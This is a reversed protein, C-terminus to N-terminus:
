MGNILTQLGKELDFRGQWGLSELKDSALSSNDMLNYSQKDAVSSETTIVKVDGIKAMAEALARISCISHPNSINYAEGSKGKLLITLIATACDLVYCYSRLQRGPSKLVIDEGKAVTKTFQASARSDDEKITPGYIHGPRAIVFDVGYQVGYSVCLTEAARKASPYCARPNLIDVYGYDTENYPTNEDKKGYIESSSIYLLRCGKNKVAVKLLSDLGYLNALMTEVPERSIKVPDPNSASHIIFDAQVNLSLPITADYSIFEYDKGESMHPFRAQIRERNRGALIMKIDASGNENLYHLADVVASCIMGTVGTIFITKHLLDETDDVYQLSQAVDEWYKATYHM